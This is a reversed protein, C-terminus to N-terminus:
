SQAVARQVKRSRPDNIVEWVTVVNPHRLMKMVSIERKLSRELSERKQGGKSPKTIVQRM